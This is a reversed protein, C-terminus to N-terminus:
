TVALTAAGAPWQHRHALIVLGWVEIANVVALIAIKTGLGVPGSFFAVARSQASWAAARM